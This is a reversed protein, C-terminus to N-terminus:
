GKSHESCIVLVTTDSCHSSSFPLLSRGKTMTKATLRFADRFWCHFPKPEIGANTCPPNLMPVDEQSQLNTARPAIDIRLHWRTKQLTTRSTWPDILLTGWWFYVLLSALLSLASEKFQLRVSTSWGVESNKRWAGEAHPLIRGIETCGFGVWKRLGLGFANEKGM